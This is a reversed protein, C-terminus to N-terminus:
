ASADEDSNGQMGMDNGASFEEMFRLFRDWEAETDMDYIAEIAKFEGNLFKAQLNRCVMEGESDGMTLNLLGQSDAQLDEFRFIATSRTGTKSKLVRVNTPVEPTGPTFEMYAM